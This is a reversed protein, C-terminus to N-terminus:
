KDLTDKFYGVMVPERTASGATFTMGCLPITGRELLIPPNFEISANHSEATLTQMRINLVVVTGRGKSQISIYARTGDCLVDKSVSLYLNTLYFDRDSPINAVIGAVGNTTQQVSGTFHEFNVPNAILVPQISNTVNNPLTAVNAIKTEQSIRNLVEKNQNEVM